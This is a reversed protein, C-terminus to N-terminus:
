WLRRRRPRRRPRRRARRRPRRPRRRRTSSRMPRRQPHARRTESCTPSRTATATATAPAVSTDAGGALTVPAWPGFTGCIRKTPRAPLANSARRHATSVRARTPERRCRSRCRCPRSIRARREARRVPRRPRDHREDPHADRDRDPARQGRRHDVPRGAFHHLRGDLQVHELHVLARRSRRPPTLGVGYLRASLHGSRGPGATPSRTRSRSAARARAWTTSRTRAPTSRLRAPSRTVSLSHTPAISDAAPHTVQSSGDNVVLDLKRNAAAADSIGRGPPALARRLADGRRRALVQAARLVREDTANPGSRLDHSGPRRDPRAIRGSLRSRAARSRGKGCASRSCLQAPDADRGATEDQRHVDLNRGPLRGRRGRTSSGAPAM